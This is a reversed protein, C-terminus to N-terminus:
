REHHLTYLEMDLPSQNNPKFEKELTRTWTFGSHEVVKISASNDKYIIAILIKLNLTKFAYATLNQIAKSAIGKNQFDKAIGYGFEGKQITWDLDKIFVLGVIAGTITKKITFLFEEQNNFADIKKKVFTESLEETLNEALTKPFYTEFHEYNSALLHHIQPADYAEVRDIHYDDFVAIM